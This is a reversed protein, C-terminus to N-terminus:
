ACRRASLRDHAEQLVPRLRKELWPQDLLWSLNGRLQRNALSDIRTGCCVLALACALNYLVQAVEAPMSHDRRAQSAADNEAAEPKVRSFTQKAFTKLRELWLLWEPATTEPPLGGAAHIMVFLSGPTAREGSVGAGRPCLYDEFPMALWFVQLVKLEDHQLEDPVDADQDHAALSQSAEVDGDPALRPAPRFALHLRHCQSSRSTRLIELWEAFREEPAERDTLEGAVVTPLVKRFVRKVSTACNDLYQADRGPYRELLEARTCTKRGPVLPALVLEEFIAWVEPKGKEEWHRRVKQITLHLVALAYLSDTDCAEEAEDHALPPCMEIPEHREHRGRRQRRRGEDAAHNRISGFLWDRFRGKLAPPQVLLNKEMLKVLFSQTLDDVWDPEVFPLSRFACRIPAEYVQVFRDWSTFAFYSTPEFM